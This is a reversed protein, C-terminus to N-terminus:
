YEVNENQVLKAPVCGDPSGGDSKFVGWRLTFREVRNLASHCAFFSQEASTLRASLSGDSALEFGDRGENQGVSYIATVPVSFGCNDGVNQFYM